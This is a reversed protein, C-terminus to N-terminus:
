YVYLVTEYLNPMYHRLAFKYDQNMKLILAPLELIDEPKHYICIAMRPHWKKITQEAGLLANYEAGEIDMKIFTVRKGNLIEDLSVTKIRIDGNDTIKAGQGSKSNFSLIDTKHWLGKNIVEGKLNYNKFAGQCVDISQSNAEFSYIYDYGKTAWEAFEIATLGNFAGGDVFVENENPEFYDFYEWGMFDRTLDVVVRDIPYNMSLLQNYIDRKYFRSGIIVISDKYDNILEEPSIIILEDTGVKQNWKSSDNDCFVMNINKYSSQKLSNLIFTGDMGSGFIVINDIKEQSKYVKDLEYTKIRKSYFTNHMSKILDNLLVKVNRNLIYQMKIEYINKSIDDSLRKEVEPVMHILDLAKM